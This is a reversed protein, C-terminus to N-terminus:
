FWSGGLAERFPWPISAIIILFGILHYIFISRHSKYDSNIKNKFYGLSILFTALLIMVPHEVTFFRLLSSKMLGEGFYVKFSQFYLGLGIIIQLYLLILNTLTLDRDDKKYSKRKIWKSLSNILTFILVALAIYRLGSHAHLLGNYM